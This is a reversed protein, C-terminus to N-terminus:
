PSPPRRDAEGRIDTAGAAVAEIVRLTEAASRSWTFARARALGRTRLSTSLAEDGLLRDIADAFAPADFPAALLAAGGTIEPIAGTNSAIIPCGCMMAECLPIGFEEYVSPFVFASALSYFAPLDAQEVYGTFVISDGLGRADIELDRRCADAGGGVMVLKVGQRRAQSTEFATVLTALNKRPDYRGVTLLFREPLGYRDRIRQGEADDAIPQFRPDAAAHITALKERPVGLFRVFDDTTLRSNSLVADARRCYRPMMLRIYLVDLRGYLEPHTFWSAGHAIMMTKCRALLPVTFKTHLLVDVGARAAAIPMGVQDWLAKTPATVLVERVNRRRNFGGMDAPARYFLVYENRDDLDLLATVLSRTFMGIGFKENIARLM